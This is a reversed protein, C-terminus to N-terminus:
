EYYAKRWNEYELYFKAGESKHIGLIKKFVKKYESQTVYGIPENYLEYLYVKRFQGSKKLNIHSIHIPVEDLFDWNEIRNFFEMVSSIYAKISYINDPEIHESSTRKILFDSDQLYCLTYDKYIRELSTSQHILSMLSHPLNDIIVNNESDVIRNNMFDVNKVELSMITRVDLGFYSFLVVMLYYPNQQVIFPMYKIIYGYLHEYDKVFMRRYPDEGYLVDFRAQQLLEIAKKVMETQRKYCPAERLYKITASKYLDVMRLTAREKNRKLLTKFEEESFYVVDKHYKYELYDIAAIARRYQRYIAYECTNSINELFWIKAKDQIEWTDIDYDMTLESLEKDTLRGSLKTKM